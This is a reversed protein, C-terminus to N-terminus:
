AASSHYTGSPWYRNTEILVKMNKKLFRSSKKPLFGDIKRLDETLGRRVKKLLEPKVDLCVNFGVIDYNAYREAGCILADTAGQLRRDQSFLETFYQNIDESYDDQGVANELAQQVEPSARKAMKQQKMAKALSQYLMSTTFDSPM